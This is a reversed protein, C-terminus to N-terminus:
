RLALLACGSRSTTDDCPPPRRRPPPNELESELHDARSAHPTAHPRVALPFDPKFHEPSNNPHSTHASTTPRLPTYLRVLQFISNRSQSFKRGYQLRPLKAFDGRVSQRSSEWTLEERKVKTSERKRWRSCVRVRRRVRRVPRGRARWGQVLGRWTTRESAGGGV